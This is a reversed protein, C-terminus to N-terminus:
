WCPLGARGGAVPRRMPRTTSPVRSDGPNSAKEKKSRAFRSAKTASPAASPAAGRRDRVLLFLGAILLVIALAMLPMRVIDLPGSAADSVKGYDNVVAAVALQGKKESPIPAYVIMDKGDIVKSVYGKSASGIAGRDADVGRAGATAYVQQGDLSFIAIDTGVPPRVSKQLQKEDHGKAPRSVNVGELDSSLAKAVAASRDQQKAVADVVARRHLFGAAFVIAGCAVALVILLKWNSKGGRADM